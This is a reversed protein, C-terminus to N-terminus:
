SGSSFLEAAERALAIWAELVRKEGLRVAIFNRADPSLDGALLAEDEAATTSFRALGARAADALVERAIAEDGYQGRLQALLLQALPETHDRTVRVPESFGLAAEDAPNPEVCFGYHVLLHMNPKVGYDCCVEDGAAYARQATLVFAQGTQDYHWRTNSGRQHNLMDVFPVLLTAEAGDVTADFCRSGVCSRAWILEDRDLQPLRARDADIDARLRALRAGALSGALLALDAPAAYIPFGPLSRPLADFYPRYASSPARREVVLWAALEMHYSSLATGADRLERGVASARADDLSIVRSRPIRAVESACAIARTAVISRAGDEDRIALGDHHGGAEAIWSSLRALYDPM